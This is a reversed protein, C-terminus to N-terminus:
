KMDADYGYENTKYARAKLGYFDYAKEGALVPIFGDPHKRFNRYRGRRTIIGYVEYVKVPVPKRAVISKVVQLTCQYSRRSGHNGAEVSIGDRYNILAHGRKINHRMLVVRPIGATAAFPIMKPNVIIVFPPTTATTTHFDVVLDTAKIKKLIAAARKVEYSSGRVGFSANLDRATYRVSKKCALPNGLVFPTGNEELAKVPAQENGHLGAVFVINREKM